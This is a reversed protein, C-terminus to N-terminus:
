EPTFEVLMIRSEMQILLKNANLFDAQIADSLSTYEGKMNFNSGFLRVANGSCVAFEKENSRIVCIREKYEYKKESNGDPGYFTVSSLESTIDSNGFAACIGVDSIVDINLLIDASSNRNWIDKVSDSKTEITPKKVLAKLSDSNAAILTSSDSYEIYPYIGDFVETSYIEGDSMRFFMIVGVTKDGEYYMGSLAFQTRDPSIASTIIYEDVFKGQFIDKSDESYDVITLETNYDESDCIVSIFDTGRHAVAGRVTNEFTR